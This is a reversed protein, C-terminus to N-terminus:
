QDFQSCVCVGAIQFICVCRCIEVIKKEATTFYFEEMTTFIGSEHTSCNVTKLYQVEKQRIEPSKTNADLKCCM